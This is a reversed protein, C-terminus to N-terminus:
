GRPLAIRERPGAGANNETAFRHGSEGRRSRIRGAGTTAPPRRLAQEVSRSSVLQTTKWNGVYKAAAGVSRARAPARYLPEASRPPGSGTASPRRLLGALHTSMNHRLATARRRRWNPPGIPGTRWEPCIHGESAPRSTASESESPSAAEHQGTSVRAAYRPFAVDFMQVVRPSHASEDGELESQQRLLSRCSAPQIEVPAIRRRAAPSWYRSASILLGEEVLERLRLRRSDRCTHAAPPAPM